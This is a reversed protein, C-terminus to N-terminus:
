DYGKVMHGIEWSTETSKPEEIACKGKKTIIGIEFRNLSRADRYFLVRMCKEIVERAEEESMDPNKEYAVRLLPQAIYSGYGTAVTSAEYGVGVYDVYGLLAKGNHVGGVVYVNWLPNLKTRRHYLVRTLWSFVAEPLFSHGDNLLDDDLVKQEVTEKMSQFDAYDGSAGIITKDNVRLMRSISRYRALSGYSGLTDAAMMIGDRYKLGLVSTGTVIPQKTRQRPDLTPSSSLMDATFCVDSPPRFSPFHSMSYWRIFGPHWLARIRGTQVTCYSQVSCSFM